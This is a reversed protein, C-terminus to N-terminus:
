GDIDWGYQRYTAGSGRSPITSIIGVGPGACAVENGFSSFNGFYIHNRPFFSPDSPLRIHPSAGHPAWGDLGIASVAVAEPHAAPYVSLDGTTGPGCM